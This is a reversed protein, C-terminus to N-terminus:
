DKPQPDIIKARFAHVWGFNENGKGGRFIPRQVVRGRTPKAMLGEVVLDQILSTADDGNGIISQLRANTLYFWSKDKYWAVYGPVSGLKHTSLDPRQVSLDLFESQHDSLYDILKKRLAQAPSLVDPSGREFLRLSDLHCSLIADLLDDRDWLFIGYQIALCGAAYVTAFRDSVRNLLRLGLKAAEATILQLYRKRRKRLFTKLAEPASAYEAVLRGVFERSPTGFYKRCRVKLADTLAAGDSFGHLDEYIGYGGDPCPIDALRGLVADDLEGLGGSRALEPLTYNSTSLFYFRWARLSGTNTMRDKEANEALAFSVQIVNQARQKDSDGALKTEDPIFLTENHALASLEVKNPTTHWTEAFGRERHEPTRHCGWCSGAVMACTTKGTEPPGVNQFGGSRARGVFRLIPGTCALSAAFMLRSNGDCLAGIKEQWEQLTGQCRYKALMQPDLDRLVIEVPLKTKGVIQDPFVFSSGHWGVRTAVKFTPREPKWSQLYDLFSNKFRQGFTNTGANAFEKLLLSLKDHIDDASFAPIDRKSGQASFKFYRKGWEDVGEGDITLRSREM